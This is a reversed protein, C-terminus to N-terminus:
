RSPACDIVAIRIPSPRSHAVHDCLSSVLDGICPIVSAGRLGELDVGIGARPQIPFWASESSAESVIRTELREAWQPPAAEKTTDPGLTFTIPQRLDHAYQILDDLNKPLSGSEWRSITSTAHGRMAAAQDQTLGARQRAARIASSVARRDIDIVNGGKPATRQHVM